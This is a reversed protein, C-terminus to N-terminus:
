GAAYTENYESMWSEFLEFGKKREENSAFDAGELANRMETIFYENTPLPVNVDQELADVRDDAITRLTWHYAGMFITGWDAPPEDHWTCTEDTYKEDLFRGIETYNSINRMENDVAESRRMEREYDSPYEEQEGPEGWEGWEGWGSVIPSNWIDDAM